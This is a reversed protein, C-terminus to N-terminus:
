STSIATQTRQIGEVAHIKGILGKLAGLDAIEAQAIVDFPGTVAHAAKVGEMKSVAEAVDWSKGPSVQILVYAIIQM